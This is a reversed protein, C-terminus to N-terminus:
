QKGESAQAENALKKLNAKDEDTLGTSVPCESSLISKILGPVFSGADTIRALKVTGAGLGRMQSRALERVIYSGSEDSFCILKKLEGALAKQYVAKDGRGNKLAQIQSAEVDVIDPNLKEISKLVGERVEGEPIKTIIDTRLAAFQDRSLAEDQLGDEFIADLSAGAFSARWVAADRMNTGALSSERFNAGQLKASDLSAGELQAMELSAGQLEAGDLSAGYLEASDLSAGQVHAFNLSAGHLQAVELSAGQLQAEELSAGHLLAKWLSAGQLQAYNLSAARSSAGYVRGRRPRM